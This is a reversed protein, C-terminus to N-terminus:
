TVELYARWPQARERLEVETEEEHFDATNVGEEWEDYDETTYAFEVSLSELHPFQRLDALLTQVDEPLVYADVEVIPHRQEASRPSPMHSVFQLERVCKAYEPHQAIAKVSAANKEDNRLVITKYIYPTLLARFFRSTSSWNVLAMRSEKERDRREADRTPPSMGNEDYKQRVDNDGLGTYDPVVADAIILQLEPQLDVLSPSM